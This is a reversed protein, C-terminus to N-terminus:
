LFYGVSIAHEMGLPDTKLGYVIGLKGYVIEFGGAWGSEDIGFRCTLDPSFSYEVGVKHSGGSDLKLFFISDSFHSTSLLLNFKSPNTEVRGTTYSIRHLADNAEIAVKTNGFEKQIGLGVSYGSGEKVTELNYLKLLGGISLGYKGKLVSSLVITREQYSLNPGLYKDGVSDLSAKFYHGKKGGEIVIANRELQSLNNFSREFELFHGQLSDQTFINTKSEKLSSNRVGVWPQEFSAKSSGALGLVLVIMLVLSSRFKM